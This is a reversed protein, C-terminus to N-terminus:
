LQKKRKRRRKRHSIVAQKSAAKALPAMGMHVVRNVGEDLGHLAKLRSLRPLVSLKAIISKDGPAVKHSAAKRVAPMLTM